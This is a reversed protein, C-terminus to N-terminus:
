RTSQKTARDPFMGTRTSAAERLTLAHELLSFAKVELWQRWYEDTRAFGQRECHAEWAECEERIWKSYASEKM